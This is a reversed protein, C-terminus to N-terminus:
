NADLFLIIRKRSALKKGKIILRPCILDVINLVMM